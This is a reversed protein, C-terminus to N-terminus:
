NTIYNKKNIESYHCNQYEAENMLAGYLEKVGKTDLREMLICMIDNELIEVSYIDALHENKLNLLNYACIFEDKDKTIKIIKGCKTGFASGNDGEGLWELKEIGNKNAFLIAEKQHKFIM